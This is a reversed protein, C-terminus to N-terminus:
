TSWLGSHGSPLDEKGFLVGLEILGLVLMM